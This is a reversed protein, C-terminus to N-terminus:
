LCAELSVCDLYIFCTKCTKENGDTEEWTIYLWVSWIWILVMVWGMQTKETKSLKRWGWSKEESEEENRKVSKKLVQHIFPQAIKDLSQNDVSEASQPCYYHPLLYQHKCNNLIEWFIYCICTRSNYWELNCNRCCFSMEMVKDYQLYPGCLRYFPM